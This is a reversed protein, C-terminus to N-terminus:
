LLYRVAATVAIAAVLILIPSARRYAGLTAVALGAARADLTLSKGRVFVQTVILAGFLAPALHGLMNAQRASLTRGGFVVPGLAKMAVTFAGLLLVTYWARTM